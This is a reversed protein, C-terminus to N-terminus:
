VMNFNYSQLWAPPNKIRSSRRLQPEANASKESVESNEESFKVDATHGTKTEPVSTFDFDFDINQHSSPIPMSVSVPQFYPVASTLNFPFVDERFTVDRSMFFSKTAINLLGVGKQSPTYGLFM